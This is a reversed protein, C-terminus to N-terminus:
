PDSEIHLKRGEVVKSADMFKFGLEPCEEAIVKAVKEAIEMAKEQQREFEVLQEPTLTKKFEELLKMLDELTEPTDAMM